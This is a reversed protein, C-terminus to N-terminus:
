ENGAGKVIKWVYTCTSEDIVKELRETDKDYYPPFEHGDAPSLDQCRIENKVPQNITPQQRQTQPNSNIEVDEVASSITKEGIQNFAQQQQMPNNMRGFSNQQQAVTTRYPQGYPQQMPQQFRPDMMPQQFRPDMVPQQYMPQQFRPDAVPQQFRPDVYQQGPQQYGPQAYAQRQQYPQQYGSQAYAQQQPNVQRQYQQQQYRPDAQRQQQNIRNFGNNGYPNM